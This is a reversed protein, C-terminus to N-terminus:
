QRCAVRFSILLNAKVKGGAVFYVCVCVCVPSLKRGGRKGSVASLPMVKSGGTGKRYWEDRLDLANRWPIMSIPFLIFGNYRM